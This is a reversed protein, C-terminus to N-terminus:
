KESGGLLLYLVAMRVSVGNAVQTLVVSREGDMVVDDIEVGRNAPGPHMVIADNKAYKLLEPTLCFFKAYERVDPYLLNSARENQVRLMMVADAGKVADVPRKEVTVGMKEIEKPIMTGPGSIVVDCGMKTLLYINSRAVRSHYIDGLLAIRLGELKGKKQWITFADLLAQTPHERFGDGANIISCDMIEALLQPTGAVSHRIIMADPQMAQLNLATDSLTEGKEIASGSVAINYTDASLRKEAVEFSMRTRTSPEAFFNIITKGKLTPVKKIQRQNIEDFSVATELINMIQDRNLNEIGLLHKM